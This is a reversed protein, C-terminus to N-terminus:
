DQEERASERELRRLERGSVLNCTETDQDYFIHVEGARLQGMVHEIKENLSYVRDGYDTGERTVFETIVGRLAERSLATYPVEM